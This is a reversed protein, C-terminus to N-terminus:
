SPQFSRHKQLKQRKEYLHREAFELITLNSDDLYLNYFISDYLVVGSLDM